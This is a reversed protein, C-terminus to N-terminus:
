CSGDVCTTSEAPILGIPVLACGSPGPRGYPRPNRVVFELTGAFRSGVRARLPSLVTVGVFLCVIM